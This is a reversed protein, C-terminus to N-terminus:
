HIPFNSEHHLLLQKGKRKHWHILLPAALNMTFPRDKTNVIALLILKAEHLVGVDQIDKQSLTPEYEPLILFPDIVVFSILDNEQAELRLYPVEKQHGILWYKKYSEFGFLGQPFVLEAKFPWVAVSPHKLRNLRPLPM